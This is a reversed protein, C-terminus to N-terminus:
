LLHQSPDKSATRAGKNRRRSSHARKSDARLVGQHIILRNRGGYGGNEVSGCIQKKHRLKEPSKPQCQFNRHLRLYCNIVRKLLSGDARTETSFMKKASIGASLLSANCALETFGNARSLYPFRKKKKRKKEDHVKQTDEIKMKLIELFYKQVAYGEDKM